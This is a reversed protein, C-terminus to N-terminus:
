YKVEYKDCIKLPCPQRVVSRVAGLELRQDREPERLTDRLYGKPRGKPIGKRM